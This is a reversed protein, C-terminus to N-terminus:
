PIVIDELIGEPRVISQDALELIKPIHRLNFLGVREMTEKTMGYMSDGLEILTNPMHVQNIYIDVIPIGHDMYKTTVVKGIMLDTLKGIMHVIPPDKPNM